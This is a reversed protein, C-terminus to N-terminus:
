CSALFNIWTTKEFVEARSTIDNKTIKIVTM